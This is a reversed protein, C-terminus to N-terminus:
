IVYLVVQIARPKDDLLPVTYTINMKIVATNKNEIRDIESDFTGLAVHPLWKSTASKIRAIAEEDFNDQSSFETTLPKLNAGFDYLGLREGWNTLILNRLNDSFQDALNYHMSFIGEGETAFSLPTKIGFPIPSKFFREALKEDKSKGVNKFSYTTM